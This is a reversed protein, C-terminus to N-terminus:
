SNLQTWAAVIEGLHAAVLHRAESPLADGALVRLDVLAVVCAGEPWLVHCHPLHHRGGHEAYVYVRYRGHTLVRVM